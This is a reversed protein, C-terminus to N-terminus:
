RLRDARERRVAAAADPGGRGVLEDHVVRHPFVLDDAVEVPIQPDVFQNVVTEEDVRLAM